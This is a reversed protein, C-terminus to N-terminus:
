FKNGNQKHLISGMEIQCIKQCFIEFNNYRSKLPIFYDHFHVSEIYKKISFTPFNVFDDFHIYFM